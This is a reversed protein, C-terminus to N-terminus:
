VAPELDVVVASQDDLVDRVVDTAGVGTSDVVAVVNRLNATVLQLQFTLTVTTTSTHTHTHTHTM